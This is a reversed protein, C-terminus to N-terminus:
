RGKFVPKRKEIFAQMGEMRDESSGLIAACKAEYDLAGALDMRMGVNICSKAMKLALPPREALEKAIRKAEDLLSEAPVVKNVLGIRCAEEADIHDGFFLLEKAKAVGILRPLRATGGGAPLVGLKIEGMGLRAVDSAIRLDCVLALELGGGIAVGGIAAIVPKDLNELKDFFTYKTGIPLPRAGPTSLERIDAGACFCPRGDTRPAGTLIVARVEEDAAIEDLVHMLDVTLQYNIANLRQPRNLTIIAIADEKEYILTDYPM